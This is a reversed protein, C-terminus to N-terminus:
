RKLIGDVLLAGAQYGREMFDLLAGVPDAEKRVDDYMLLAMPSGNNDVWKASSPQITTKDLGQPSPYTYSYFAPAPINEDGAWFGFSIVEHSYADKDSLRMGETLPVKKGSFRTVTMDLHHWYIQVPCTKGYFRGSFEDFVEDVWLLIKWFREVYDKQYSAM